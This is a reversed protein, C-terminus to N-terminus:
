VSGASLVGGATFEGTYIWSELPTGQLGGRCISCFLAVPGIRSRMCRAIMALMGDAWGPLWGPGARAGQGSSRARLRRQPRDLAGGPVEEMKLAGLGGWVRRLSACHDACPSCGGIHGRLADWGDESPEGAIFAALEARIEECRTM